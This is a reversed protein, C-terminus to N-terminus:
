HHMSSTINNLFLHLNGETRNTTLFMGKSKIYAYVDDTDLSTYPIDDHAVFDIKNATLFEETVTWPADRVIEDVYRSNNM